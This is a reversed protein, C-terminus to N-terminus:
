LREGCKPCFVWSEKRLRYGCSPCYNRIEKVNRNIQSLPLLKYEVSVFPYSEFEVEVQQINQNSLEGKEIRGTEVPKSDVYNKSTIENSEEVYDSLNLSDQTTFSSEQIPSWKANTNKFKRSGCSSGRGSGSNSASMGKVNSGSSFTGSVANSTLNLTGMSQNCYLTNWNSNTWTIPQVKEKFFEIKVVGNNQIAEMAKQNGGDVVYTEFVMKRSEGLFRELTVDQGPNLVLLQQSIQGNFSIRAGIKEHLPNFFRIGFNQKDNLYIEKSQSGSYIRAEEYSGSQPNQALVIASPDNERLRYHTM